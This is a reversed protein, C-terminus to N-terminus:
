HHQKIYANRDRIAKTKDTTTVVHVGDVVVKYSTTEYICAMGEPDAKAEDLAPKKSGKITAGQKLLSKYLSDRNERADRLNTTGTSRSKLSGNEYYLVAYYRGRKVLGSKSHKIAPIEYQIKAKAKKSTKSKM